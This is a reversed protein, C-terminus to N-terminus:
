NLLERKKPSYKIIIDFELLYKIQSDSIKEKEHFTLHCNLFDVALHEFGKNSILDLFTDMCTKSCKEEFFKFLDRLKAKEKKKVNQKLTKSNIDEQGQQTKQLQLM